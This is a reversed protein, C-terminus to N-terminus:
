FSPPSPHAALMAQRDSENYAVGMLCLGHPPACLILQPREGADLIRLLRERDIQGQGMAVLTGVMFRIMHQLFSRCKFDFAILDGDRMLSAEEMTLETRLAQCQGSRFGSFDHTGHLLALGSEIGDLDLPRHVKWARPGLPRRLRSARIQYRYWRLIAARRADFGSGADEASLVGLSDPLFKALAIPIRDTPIPHDLDFHVPMALAHVGTDTRGASFVRVRGGLMNAIADELAGQVTPRGPQMQWGEFPAGNYQVLLKIRRISMHVIM